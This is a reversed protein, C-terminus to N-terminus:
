RRSGGGFLMMLFQFLNIFDLYLSLAGYNTAVGMAAQDGGLQYYTMKLRQTDYAILGSFILVGLISIIFAMGSSHLFVNVISAIFLGWMGMILFSGMGSLDKKTTYGVLSLGGFAAATIFFTTAVSVGTYITLWISLGAGILSVITWYLLGASRPSPNRMLFMAGLIVIVPAIRLLAGLGTLGVLAGGPTLVYLYSAVPQNSCIWALVGSLVLGLALKNYVGLMFARLGADVAMDAQGAAWPRAVGRNFDSM